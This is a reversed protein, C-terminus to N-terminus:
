RVVEGCRDCMWFAGSGLIYDVQGKHRGTVQCWLVRLRHFRMPRDNEAFHESM